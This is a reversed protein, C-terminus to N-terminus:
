ERVIKDNGYLKCPASRAKRAAVFLPFTAYRTKSSEERTTFERSAAMRGARCHARTETQEGIRFVCLYATM